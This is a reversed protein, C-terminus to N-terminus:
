SIMVVNITLMSNVTWSLFFFRISSGLKTATRVSPPLLSSAVVARSALFDYYSSGNIRCLTLDCTLLSALAKELWNYKKLCYCFWTLVTHFLLTFIFVNLDPIFRKIHLHFIRCHFTFCSRKWLILLNTLFFVHILFCITVIKRLINFWSRGTNISLYPCSSAPRFALSRQFKSFWSLILTHSTLLWMESSPWRLMHKMLIQLKTKIGNLNFCDIKQWLVVKSVLFQLVLYSPEVQQHHAKVM